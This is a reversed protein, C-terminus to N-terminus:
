LKKIPSINVRVEMILPKHDSETAKGKEKLTHFNTLNHSKDSEIKMSMVFPLVRECVVYFDITSTELKGMCSRIRTTVGETLSMSNVCKLKNDNLFTAFLKGNRNQERTDGKIFEPGLWANLDGQLVFGNGCAKARNAQESIYKWFQIKKEIADGEQPGYASVVSIAIQKLHIDVTLAEIGEGGDSIFTPQLDKCASLAVGGGENLTRIHEYTYFGDLNIQGAQSCKTEQM